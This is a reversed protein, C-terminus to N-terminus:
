KEITVRRNAEDYSVEAGLSESIFRLPVTTRGPAVIQPATDITHKEGNVLVEKSGVTLELTKDGSTMVVKQTSGQWEVAVGLAEGIFRLPVMVRGSGDEFFAPVDLDYAADNIFAKREGVGLKVTLPKPAPPTDVKVGFVTFVSLHNVSATAVDGEVVTELPIWKGDDLTHVGPKEGSPIRSKEFPIKVKVQRAGFESSGQTSIDFVDGAAKSSMSGLRNDREPNVLKQITFVAGESLVGSPVELSAGAYEIKGGDRDITKENKLLNTGGVNVVNVGDSSFESDSPADISLSVNGAAGSPVNIVIPGGDYAGGMVGAHGLFIRAPNGPVAVSTIDIRLTKNGDLASVSMGGIANPRGGVDAPVSFGVPEFSFGAPRNPLSFFVSSPSFLAPFDVTMVGTEQGPGNNITNMNSMTYTSTASAPACSLLTLLLVSWVIIGFRGKRKLIRFGM